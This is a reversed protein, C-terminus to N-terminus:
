QFLSHKKIPKQYWLLYRRGIDESLEKDEVMRYVVGNLAACYNDYLYSFAQQDKQRLLFVLEEETYKIIALL